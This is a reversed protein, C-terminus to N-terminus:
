FDLRLLQQQRAIVRLKTITASGARRQFRCDVGAAELMAQLNDAGADDGTGGALRVGAGLAALNMAVNGAGGPRDTVSDVRVVPVPAEPSIRTAGGQCYRDLLIDGVVLLRVRDFPPVQLSM